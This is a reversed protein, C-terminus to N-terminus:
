IFPQTRVLTGQDVDLELGLTDGAAYGQQQDAPDHSFAPHGDWNWGERGHYVIGPARDYWGWGFPTDSALRPYHNSPCYGAKVIGVTVTGVYDGDPPGIQRIRFEARHVGARMVAGGCVATGNYTGLATAMCRGDHANFATVISDTASSFTLPRELLELEGLLRRWPQRAHRPVKARQAAPTKQLQRRAAEDVLSWLEAAEGGLEEAVSATSFRRSACALAGLDRVRLFTAIDLFVEDGLFPVAALSTAAADTTSSATGM